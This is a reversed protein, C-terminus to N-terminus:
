LRSRLPLPEAWVSGQELLAVRIGGLCGRGQQEVLGPRMRTVKLIEGADEWYWSCLQSPASPQRVQMMLVDRWIVRLHLFVCTLFVWLQDGLRAFCSAAIEGDRGVAWCAAPVHFIATEM